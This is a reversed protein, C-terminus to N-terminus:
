AGDLANIGARLFAMAKGIDAEQPRQCVESVVAAAAAATMRPGFADPSDGREEAFLRTGEQIVEMLRTNTLARLPPNLDLMRKYLDSLDSREWTESRLWHELADLISQGVPRERLATALRDAFADSRSTALELKSPFYLTVTRASVEAASAVDAITTADFGQEAFLEYAARLIAERRRAKSRERLGESTM